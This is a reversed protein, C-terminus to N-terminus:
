RFETPWLNRKLIKMIRTSAVIAAADTQFTSRYLRRVHNKHFLIEGATSKHIGSSLFFHKDLSLFVCMSSFSLLIRLFIGIFHSNNPHFYFCSCDTKTAIIIWLIIWYHITTHSYFTSIFQKPVSETCVYGHLKTRMNIQQGNLDSSLYLVNNIEM